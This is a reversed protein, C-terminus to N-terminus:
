TIINGVLGRQVADPKIMIFTREREKMNLSALGRSASRLTAGRSCLAVVCTRISVTMFTAPQQSDPALLLVAHASANQTTKKLEPPSYGSFAAQTLVSRRASIAAAPNRVFIGAATPAFATAPRAQLSEDTEFRLTQM